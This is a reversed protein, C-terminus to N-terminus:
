EKIEKHEELYKDRIMVGALIPFTDRIDPHEYLYAKIPNMLSGDNVMMDLFAYISNSEVELKTKPKYKGIINFFKNKNEEKKLMSNFGSDILMQKGAPQIQLPSMARLLAPDLKSRASSVLHTSIVLVNDKVKHLLTGLSFRLYIFGSIIVIGLFLFPHDVPKLGLLSFTNIFTDM